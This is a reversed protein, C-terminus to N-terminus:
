FLNNFDITDEVSEGRNLKGASNYGDYIAYIWIILFLIEGILIVTLVLSVLAAVFLIIGKKNLGLYLQGLGVIFFSLVAALVPNKDAVKVENTKNNTPTTKAPVAGNIPTGCENCFETGEALEKGCNTCFIKTQEENSTTNEEEVKSGCNNCFKADGIEEGCVQCKVM